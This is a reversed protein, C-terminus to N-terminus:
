SRCRSRRQLLRRRRRRQQGDLAAVIDGSPLVEVRGRAPQRHDDSNVVFESGVRGGAADFVQAYINFDTAGPRRARGPSSSAAAPCRLSTPPRDPHRGDDHQRRVRRRGSRRRCRVIAGPRRLDDSPRHGAAFGAADLHRPLRLRARHRPAHQFQRLNSDNVIQETGVKDGDAEFLQLRVSGSIVGGSSATAGQWAIAFGGSALAAITPVAQSGTTMTNVLLEGGAPAGSADFLRAKIGTGSSDGGVGSGDSWAVVFGGGSLAGITSPGQSGTTVTNALIEGGVPTGDAEFVQFRISGNDTDGGTESFDTWNVVFRGSSLTVVSPSVQDDLLITNVLIEGGLKDGDSDFRQAKISFGSSDTGVMSGDNWVVVFGGGPLLALNQALQGNATETNVLVEGGKRKYLQAM